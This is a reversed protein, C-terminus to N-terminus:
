KRVEMMVSWVAREVSVYLTERGFWGAFASMSAVALPSIQPSRLLLNVERLADTLRPAGEIGSFLVGLGEVQDLLVRLRTDVDGDVHLAHEYDRVARVLDLARRELVASREEDMDAPEVRYDLFSPAAKFYERLVTGNFEFAGGSLAKFWRWDRRFDPSVGAVQFDRGLESALMPLTLCLDFYAPNLMNDQVWDKPTRTMGPITRLHPAFADVLAATKDEFSEIGTTLRASLARRIVNPLFGVPSVCTVVLVGRPAVFGALKGLLSREHASAGLWNECLVIDFPEEPVYDELKAEILTPATHPFAAGSYCDKIARIGAPNPELLTYTDPLLSAIYLSNHGTGAAVELVRAGRFTLPLAGLTRYLAERRQFHAKLDSLDYSVPAIDHKIYYDLHSLRNEQKKHGVRNDSPM